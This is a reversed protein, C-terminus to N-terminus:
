KQCIYEVWMDDPLDQYDSVRILFDGDIVYGKEDMNMVDTQKTSNEQNEETGDM